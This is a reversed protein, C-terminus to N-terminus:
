FLYEWAWWSVVLLAWPLLFRLGNGLASSLVRRVRRRQHGAFARPLQDLVHDVSPRRQPDPDLMALCLRDLSEPLDPRLARLRQPGRPLTGSLLEFLCVGLAYVDSASGPEGDALEPAMYDLTGGAAGASVLSADLGEVRLQRAMGFDILSAASSQAEFLFHEPKLDGHIVGARHCAQVLELMARFCAEVQAGALEGENLLWRLSRGPSLELALFPPEEASGDELLRPIGAHEVRLMAAAEHALAVGGDRHLALKLAVLQEGRRARWVEGFGGRGLLQELEYGALLQGPAFPSAQALAQLDLSALELPVRGGEAVPRCEKDVESFAVLQRAARATPPRRDPDPHTLSAIAVDWRPTLDDRLRSVRLTPHPPQGSLLEHLLVGFAYLDSRGDVTRGRRLEPAMYALTGAAPVVRSALSLSLYVEELLKSAARGLGLDVIKARGDSTVIVNEPKLDLHVIGAAHIAGLGALIQDALLLAQSPKITGTCLARLPQGEILEMALFPHPGELQARYCRAVAPHQVSALLLGERRLHRLFGERMPLKLARATGEPDAAQWVEGMAGRGLRRVLQYPGLLDGPQLKGSGSSNWLGRQQSSGLREAWRQAHEEVQGRAVVADLLGAELAQAASFRPGPLRALRRNLRRLREPLPKGEPWGGLQWTHALGAFEVPEEALRYDAFQTWDLATGQVSGQIAVLMPKRLEAWAGVLTGSLESGMGAGFVDAGGTLIVVKVAPDAELRSLEDTLEAHSLCSLAAPFRLDIRAIGNRCRTTVETQM